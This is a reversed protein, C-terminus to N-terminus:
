RVDGTGDGPCDDDAGQPCWVIWDMCTRDAHVCAAIRLWEATRDRVHHVSETGGADPSRKGLGRRHPLAGHHGSGAHPHAVHYTSVM